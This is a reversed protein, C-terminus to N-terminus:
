RAITSILLIIIVFSVKINDLLNNTKEVKNADTSTNSITRLSKFFKDTVKDFPGEDAYNWTRDYDDIEDIHWSM